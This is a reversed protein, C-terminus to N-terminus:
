LLSVTSNQSTRHYMYFVTRKDPIQLLEPNANLVLKGDKNDYTFARGDLLLQSTFHSSGHLVRGVLLYTIVDNNNGSISFSKTFHIRPPAVEADARADSVISLTQPWHQHVSFVTSQLSCNTYLCPIAPLQHLRLRGSSGNGAPGLPTNQSFYDEISADVGYKSQTAHIDPIDLSNWVRPPTTAHIAQHHNSDCYYDVHYHTGFARQVEVLNSESQLVFNVCKACIIFLLSVMVGRSFWEMSCGFQRHDILREDLTYDLITSQTLELDALYLRPLIKTNSMQELRRSFRWLLKGLFSTPQVQGLVSTRYNSDWLSFSRSLVELTSDIFCSNQKNWPYSVLFHARPQFATM